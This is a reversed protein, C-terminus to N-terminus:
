GRQRCAYLYAGALQLEARRAPQDRVARCRGNRVVQGVTGAPPELDVGRGTHHAHIVTRQQIESFGSTEVSQWSRLSTKKLQM